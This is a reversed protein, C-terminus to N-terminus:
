IHCEPQTPWHRAGAKTKPVEESRHQPTGPLFLAVRGNKGTQRLYGRALLWQLAEGVKRESVGCWAAAFRWSFPTAVNPTHLWKVGLLFGYGEYVSRVHEPADSPLPTTHVSVPPLVGAECLLRLSWTALEPKNLPKVAGYAQFARIAGLPYIRESGRATHHLDIYSHV